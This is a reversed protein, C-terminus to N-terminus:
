GPLELRCFAKMATSWEVPTDPASRPTEPFLVSTAFGAVESKVAVVKSITAMKSNSYARFAHNARLPVSRCDVGPIIALKIGPYGM